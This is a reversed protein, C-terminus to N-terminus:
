EHRGLHRGLHMACITVMAAVAVASVADWNDSIRGANSLTGIEGVLAFTLAMPEVSMIHGAADSVAGVAPEDVPHLQRSLLIGDLIVVRAASHRRGELGSASALRCLQTAVSAATGDEQIAVVHPAALVSEQAAHV